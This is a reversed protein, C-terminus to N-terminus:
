QNLRIIFLSRDPTGAVSLDPTSSLREVPAAAVPWASAVGTERSPPYKLSAYQRSGVGHEFLVSSPRTVHNGTTIITAVPSLRPDLAV